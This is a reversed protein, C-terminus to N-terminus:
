RIQASAPLSPPLPISGRKRNTAVRNRLPPLLIEEERGRGGGQRWGAQRGERGDQTVM